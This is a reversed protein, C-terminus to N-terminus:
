CQNYKFGGCTRHMKERALSYPWVSGNLFTQSMHISCLLFLWTDLNFFGQMICYHIVLVLFMTCLLSPGGLAQTSNYAIFLSCDIV